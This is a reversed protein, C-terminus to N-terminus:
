ALRHNAMETTEQPLMANLVELLPASDRPLAPVLTLTTKLPVLAIETEHQVIRVTMQDADFRALDLNSELIAIS